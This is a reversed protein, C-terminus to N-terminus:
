GILGTSEQDLPPFEPYRPLSDDFAAWSLRKSHWYHMTPKMEEPNDFSGVTIDIFGPLYEAEFSIPTGCEACFGRKVSESAVFKKPEGSTFQVQGKKFMAWAVVPAGNARRCTSCHCVAVVVPEGKTVYRVAGCQCGGETGQDSM